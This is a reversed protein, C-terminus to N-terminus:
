APGPHFLRELRRRHFLRIKRGRSLQEKPYRLVSGAAETEVSVDMVSFVADYGYRKLAKLQCGALTGGDRVYDSVPVGSLTAAHGFVQAIVPVRDTEKFNVAANVRELSNM